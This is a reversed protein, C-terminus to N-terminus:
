KQSGRFGKALQATGGRNQAHQQGQRGQKGDKLTDLEHPCVLRKTTPTLRDSVVGLGVLERKRLVGQGSVVWVM